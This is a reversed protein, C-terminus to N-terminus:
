KTVNALAQRAYASNISDQRQRHRVTMQRLVEEPTIDRRPLFHALLTVIDPCSLLPHENEHALRTELMFLTAMMVMAMHHHWARWGRTQYHDLGVTGKADQFSREVFYRQGQMYALREVTTEAPANCLSYKITQKAAVERRVILHWQRVDSQDDLWVWVRQTLIDVELRGKTADRVSIRQWAQEPQNTAWQAVTLKPINTTCRTPTRGRTSCRPPISPAPDEPYIVQSKHVDAVFLEGEDDFTRLLRPDKGYGGDVGIWAFRLGLARAHHVIDLGLEGKTEFHVDDPVGARKCRVQDETWEKPLYLRADILAASAGRVLSAFVGVQCNDIKGLRGCWQRAVGVSKKGKKPISTEDIILATDPSGGLHRDCDLAVQDMVPRHDWPSISAFHHLAQYDTDPVVEIMREVNKSVAQMLGSLYHLSQALVSRTRTVFLHQYRSHFACFSKAVAM